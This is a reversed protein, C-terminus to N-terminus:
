LLLDNSPLFIEWSRFKRHKQCVQALLTQLDVDHIHTKKPKFSEQVRSIDDAIINKVGVIHAAVSCVASTRQYEAYVRLMNQGHTSVTSIKNWWANASTSDGNADLIPTPPFKGPNEEYKTKFVLYSIFLAIFELINIHIKDTMGKKYEEKSKIMDFIKKKFPFLAIVKMSPIYVGIACHSADGFSKCVPTRPVIHGIPTSWYENKLLYVYITNISQRITETILIKTKQNWLYKAMHKEELFKLRYSMDSPM